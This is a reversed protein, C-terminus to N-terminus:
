DKSTCPWSTCPAFPFGAAMGRQAFLAGSVEANRVFRRHWCFPALSTALFAMPYGAGRAQEWLKDHDVHDIAKQRDWNWEITKNTDRQMDRRAMARWIADTTDRGPAM